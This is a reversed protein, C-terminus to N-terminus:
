NFCCPRRPWGLSKKEPLQLLPICLSARSCPQIQSMALLHACHSGELQLHAENSPQLIVKCRQVTCFHLNLFRCLGWSTISDTHLLFFPKQNIRVNRICWKRKWGGCCSCNSDTFCMFQGQSVPLLTQCLYASHWGHRFARWALPSTMTGSPPSPTTLHLSCWKRSDNNDNEVRLFVWKQWVAVTLSHTPQMYSAQM